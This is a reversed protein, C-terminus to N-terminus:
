KWGFKWLLAMKSKMKERVGERFIKAPWVRRKANTGHARINRFILALCSFNKFTNRHGGVVHWLWIRVNKKENALIMTELEETSVIVTYIRHSGAYKSCEVHLCLRLLNGDIPTIFTKTEKFVTMFFETRSWVKRSFTTLAWLVHMKLKTRFFGWMSKSDENM